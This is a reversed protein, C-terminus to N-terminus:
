RLDIVDVDPYESEPFTFTADQYGGAEKIEKIHITNCM